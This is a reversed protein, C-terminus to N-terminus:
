WLGESVYPRSWLAIELLVSKTWAAQMRQVDENSHRKKALFDKAGLVVPAAFAILYRVPVLEPTQARDTANKKAPTHRLGIEQQYDLWAQDRPRTCTDIVWEVFRKKVAAKYSDDPKGDPGIFWRALHPQAGIQARWSDVMQEAQDSLVGAAMKLAEADQATWGVTQELARLESLTVPSHAARSTGYDYGPIPGYKTKISETGAHLFQRVAEITKGDGGDTLEFQASWIVRSADSGVPEVRFRGVYDRVPLASREMTYEYVHQSPNLQTLREVQKSGDKGRAIRTARSGETSIDLRELMPHWDGVAGFGGIEQWVTATNVPIDATETIEPM